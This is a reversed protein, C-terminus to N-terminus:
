LLNILNKLFPLRITILKEVQKAEPPLSNYLRQTQQQNAIKFIFFFLRNCHICTLIFCFYNLKNLTERYLFLSISYFASPLHRLFM